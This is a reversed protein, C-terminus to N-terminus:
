PPRDGLRIAVATFEAQRQRKTVIAAGRRMLHRRAVRLVSKVVPIAGQRGRRASLADAPVQHLLPQLNALPLYAGELCWWETIHQVAQSCDRPAAGTGAHRRRCWSWRLPVATCPLSRSRPEARVRERRKAPREAIGRSITSRHAPRVQFCRVTGPHLGRADRAHECTGKSVFSMISTYHATGRALRLCVARSAAVDWQRRGIVIRSRVDHDLVLACTRRTVMLGGTPPRPLNTAEGLFRCM